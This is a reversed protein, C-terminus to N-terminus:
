REMQTPASVLLLPAKLLTSEKTPTTVRTSPLLGRPSSGLCQCCCFSFINTLAFNSLLSSLPKPNFTHSKSCWPEPYVMTVEMNNVKLASSLELGIYGGGVVVAKGNAKVNMATVLEDADVLERLYFINKADAGEVGFDSLRTVQM